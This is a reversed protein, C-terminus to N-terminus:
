VRIGLLSEYCSLCRETYLNLASEQANDALMTGNELKTAVMLVTELLHQLLHFTWRTHSRSYRVASVRHQSNASISSFVASNYGHGRVAAFLHYSPSLRLQSPGLNSMCCACCCPLSEGCCGIPPGLRQEDVTRYAAFAQSELILSYERSM